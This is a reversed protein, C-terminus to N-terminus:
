AVVGRFERPRTWQNGGRPIAVGGGTSLARHGFACPSPSAAAAAITLADELLADRDKYLGQAVFVDLKELLTFEESM